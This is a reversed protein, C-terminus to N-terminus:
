EETEIPTRETTTYGKYREPIGGTSPYNYITRYTDTKYFENGKIKKGNNLIRDTTGSIEIIEYGETGTLIKDNNRNIPTEDKRDKRTKILGMIRPPDNKFYRNGTGFIEKTEEIFEKHGLFESNPNFIMTIIKIKIPTEFIRIQGFERKYINPNGTEDFGETIRITLTGDPNFGHIKGKDTGNTTM